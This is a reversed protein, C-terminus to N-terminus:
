GLTEELAEKSFGVLKQFDYPLIVSCPTISAARSYSDGNV